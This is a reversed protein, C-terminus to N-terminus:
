ESFLNIGTLFHEVLEGGGSASLVDLVAAARHRPLFRSVVDFLFWVEAVDNLLGCSKHLV